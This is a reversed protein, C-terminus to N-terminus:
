NEVVAGCITGMSHTRIGKYILASSVINLPFHATYWIVFQCENKQSFVPYLSYSVRRGGVHSKSVARQADTTLLQLM